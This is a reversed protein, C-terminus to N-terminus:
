EVYDVHISKINLYNTTASSPLGAIYTFGFYVDRNVYQSATLNFVVQTSSSYLNNSTMLVGTDNANANDKLKIKMPQADINGSGVNNSVEINFTITCPRDVHFAKTNYSYLRCYYVSNLTLSSTIKDGAVSPYKHATPSAGGSTDIYNNWTDIYYESSYVGNNFIYGDWIPDFYRDNYWQGNAYM